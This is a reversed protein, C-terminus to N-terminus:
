LREGCRPWTDRAVRCEETGSACSISASQCPFAVKVGHRTVVEAVGKGFDFIGAEGSVNDGKSEHFRGLDFVSCGVHLKLDLGLIRFDRLLNKLVAV